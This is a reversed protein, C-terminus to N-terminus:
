LRSGRWSVPGLKPNGRPGQPTFHRRNDFPSSSTGASLRRRIRDWPSADNATQEQSQALASGTSRAVANSALVEPTCANVANTRIAPYPGRTARSGHGAMPLVRPDPAQISRKRNGHGACGALASARRRPAFAHRGKWASATAAGHALGQKRDPIPLTTRGGARHHSPSRVPVCCIPWRAPARPRAARRSVTRAAGCRRPAAATSACRIPRESGPAAPLHGPGPGSRRGSPRGLALVPRNRSRGVGGRRQRGLPMGQGHQHQCRSGSATGLVVGLQSSDGGAPAHAQSPSVAAQASAALVASISIAPSM